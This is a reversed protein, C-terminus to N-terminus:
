NQYHMTTAKQPQVNNQFISLNPLAISNRELRAIAAQAKEIPTKSHRCPPLPQQNIPQTTTANQFSPNTSFQMQSNMINTQHDLHHNVNTM